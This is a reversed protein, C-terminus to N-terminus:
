EAREMDRQCMNKGLDSVANCLLTKIFFFPFFLPEVCVRVHLGHLLPLFFFGVLFLVIVAAMVGLMPGGSKVECRM